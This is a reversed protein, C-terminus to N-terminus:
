RVTGFYCLSIVFICLHGLIRVHMCVHSLMQARLVGFKVEILAGEMQAPGPSHAHM